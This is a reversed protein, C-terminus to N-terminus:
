LYIRLTHYAAIILTVAVSVLLIGLFLDFELSLIFSVTHGKDGKGNRRIKSSIIRRAATSNRRRCSNCAKIEIICSGKVAVILRGTM